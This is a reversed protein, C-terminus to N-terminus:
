EIVEGRLLFKGLAASGLFGFVAMLLAADFYTSSGYRIALVLVGLLAVTFVFDFAVVRDLARPGRLVRALGVIMAACYACLTATIAVDLLNM